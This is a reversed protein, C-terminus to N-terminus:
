RPMYHFSWELIALGRISEAKFWHEVERIWKFIFIFGVQIGLKRFLISCKLIHAKSGILVLKNIEDILIKGKRPLFYLCKLTSATESMEHGDTRLM